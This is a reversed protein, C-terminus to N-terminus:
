PSQVACQPGSRAALADRVDEIAVTTKDRLMAGEPHPVVLVLGSEEGRGSRPASASTATNPTHGRQGCLTQSFPTYCGYQGMQRPRKAHTHRPSRHQAEYVVAYLAGISLGFTGPKFMALFLVLSSSFRLGKGRQSCPAMKQIKLYISGRENHPNHPTVFPEASYM